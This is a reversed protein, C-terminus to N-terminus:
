QDLQAHKVTGVEVEGSGRHLEREIARASEGAASGVVSASAIRSAAQYREAVRPRRVDARHDLPRSTPVDDGLRALADAALADREGPPLRGVFPAFQAM